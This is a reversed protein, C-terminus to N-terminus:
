EKVDGVKIKLKEDYYGDFKATMEKTKYNYYLSYMEKGSFYLTLETCNPIEKENNIFGDFDNTCLLYTSVAYPCYASSYNTFYDTTDKTWIQNPEIYSYYSNLYLKSTDKNIAILRVLKKGDNIKSPRIEFMSCINYIITYTEQPKLKTLIVKSFNLSDKSKIKITDLQSLNINVKYKKNQEFLRTNNITIELSNYSYNPDDEDLKLFVFHSNQCYISSSLFFIIYIIWFGLIKRQHIM